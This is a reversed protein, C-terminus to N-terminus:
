DINIESFFFGNFVYNIFLLISFANGDCHARFDIM